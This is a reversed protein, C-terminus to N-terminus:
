RPAFGKERLAQSLAIVAELMEDREQGGDFANSLRQADSYGFRKCLQALAFATNEDLTVKVVVKKAM